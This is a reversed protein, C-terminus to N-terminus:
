GRVMSASRDVLLAIDIGETSTTLEINGRLPRALALIVLVVAAFEFCRPLFALRQVLTRPM